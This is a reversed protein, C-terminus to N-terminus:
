KNKAEKRWKWITYGTAVAAPVLACIVKVWFEAPGIAITGIAGLTVFQTSNM